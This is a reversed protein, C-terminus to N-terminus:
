PHKPANPAAKPTTALPANPHCVPEQTDQSLQLTSDKGCTGQMKTVVEQLRQSAEVTAKYQPSQQEQQQASLAQAQFKFFQKVLDDSIKPAKTATDKPTKTPESQCGVSSLVLTAILLTKIM